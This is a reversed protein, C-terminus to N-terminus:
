KKIKSLKDAEKNLKRNIWILKYKMKDLEEYVKKYFYNETCKRSNLCDIISQCDNYIIINKDNINQMKLLNRLLFWIAYLEAETTKINKYEYQKSNSSIHNSKDDKIVYSCKGIKIDEQLSADCYCNVCLTKEYLQYQIKPNNIIAKKKLQTKKKKKLKKNKNYLFYGIKKVNEWDEKIFTNKIRKINDHCNVTLDVEIWIHDTKFPMEVKCEGHIEKIYHESLNM